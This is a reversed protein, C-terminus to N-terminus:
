KRYYFGKAKIKEWVKEPLLDKPEKGNAIAQRIASSSLDMLPAEFFRINPHHLYASAPTNGPRNYIYFGYTELLQQHNKWQHFDNLIDTGAIVIFEREPYHESLVKLTDITYSPVPLSFEVESIKLGKHFQIAAKLLELRHNAELLENKPKLPNQPSLVFWVEQLDSNKQMYAAVELHANHVPNFSGFMLGTKKRSEM